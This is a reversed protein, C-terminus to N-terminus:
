PVERGSALLAVVVDHRDKTLTDQIKKQLRRRLEDLVKDLALSCGDCLDKTQRAKAEAAQATPVAHTLPKFVYGWDGPRSNAEATGGCVDCRFVQAM